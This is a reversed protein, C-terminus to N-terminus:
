ATENIGTSILSKKKSNPNDGDPTYGKANQRESARLAAKRITNTLRRTGNQMRKLSELNNQKIILFEEHMKKLQEKLAPDAKEIDKKREIMQGSLDEYKMAATFKDQQLNAFGKTDTTNLLNNEEKLLANLVEISSIVDKVATNTDKSLPTVPRRQQNQATNNESNKYTM